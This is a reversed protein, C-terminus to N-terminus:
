LYIDNIDNNNFTAPYGSVFYKGEELIRGTTGSISLTATIAEYVEYKGWGYDLEVRGNSLDESSTEILDFQNYRRVYSTTDPM